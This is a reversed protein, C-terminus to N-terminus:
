RVSNGAVVLGAVGTEDVAVSIQMDHRAGVVNDIDGTVAQGGAGHFLHQRGM